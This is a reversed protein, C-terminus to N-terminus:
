KYYRQYYVAQMKRKLLYFTNNTNIQTNKSSFSSFFDNKLILQICLFKWFNWNNWTKALIQLYSTYTM